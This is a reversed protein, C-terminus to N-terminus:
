SRVGRSAVPVLRWRGFPNHATSEEPFYPQQDDCMRFVSREYHYLEQDRPCLDEACVDHLFKFVPTCDLMSPKSRTMVCDRQGFIRMGISYVDMENAGLNVFASLVDELYQVDAM